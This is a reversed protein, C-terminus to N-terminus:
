PQNSIVDRPPEVQLPLTVAVDDDRMVLGSDTGGDTASIVCWRSLSTNVM